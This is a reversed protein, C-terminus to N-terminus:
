LGDGQPHDHAWVPKDSASVETRPEDLRRPNPDTGGKGTRIQPHKRFGFM